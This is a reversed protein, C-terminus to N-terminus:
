HQSIHKNRYIRVVHGMYATSESVNICLLTCKKCKTHLSEATYNKFFSMKNNTESHLKLFILCCQNGSLFRLVHNHMLVSYVDICRNKSKIFHNIMVLLSRQQRRISLGIKEDPHIFCLHPIRYRGM